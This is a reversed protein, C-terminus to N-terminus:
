FTRLIVRRLRDHNELFHIIKMSITVIQNDFLRSFMLSFTFVFIGLFIAQAFNIAGLYLIVAFTMLASVLGMFISRLVFYLRQTRVSTNLLEMITSKRRNCELDLHKQSVKDSGKEIQFSECVEKMVVRELDDRMAEILADQDDIDTQNL